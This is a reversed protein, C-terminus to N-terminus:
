NLSNNKSMKKFKKQLEVSWQIGGGTIILGFVLYGLAIGTFSIWIIAAYFPTISPNYLAAEFNILKANVLIETKSLLMIYELKVYCAILIFVGIVILQRSLVRIRNEDIKAVKRLVIGFLLFCSILLILLIWMITGSLPFLGSGFLLDQVFIEKGINLETVHFVVVSILEIISVVVFSLSFIRLFRSVGKSDM